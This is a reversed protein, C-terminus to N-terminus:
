SIFSFTLIIRYTFYYVSQSNGCTVVTTKIHVYLFPSRHTHRAAPHFKNLNQRCCFLRAGRISGFRIPIYAATLQKTLIPPSPNPQYAFPSINSALKKSYLAKYSFYTQINQKQTFVLVMCKRKLLCNTSEKNSCFLM